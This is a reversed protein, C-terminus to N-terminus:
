AGQDRAIVAEGNRLELRAAFEQGGESFGKLLRTKGKEVLTRVTAPTIKKGAIQKWVVFRCGEQWGSCGYGKQGAM